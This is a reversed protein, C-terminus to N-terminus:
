SPGFHLASMIRQICVDDRILDHEWIRIVRWGLKRLTRNVLLDRAMNSAFKKEWFAQNNRPIKCHKPCCHWFCGDVFIAVRKDYFVFDPKGFVSQGRRWGTVHYRRLLKMLALETKKNGSGRIRSMVDSRKEQTFVDSM